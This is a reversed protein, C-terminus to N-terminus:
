TLDVTEIGDEGLTVPLRAKKSRVFAVEDEDGASNDSAADLTDSRERKVRSTERKVKKMM